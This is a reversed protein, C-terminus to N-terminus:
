NFLPKVILLMSEVGRATGQVAMQGKGQIFFIAIIDVQMCSLKFFNQFDILLPEAIASEKSSVLEGKSVKNVKWVGVVDCCRFLKDAQIVRPFIHAPPPLLNRSPLRPLLYQPIHLPHLLLVFLLFQLLLLLLLLLFLVRPGGSVWNPYVRSLM